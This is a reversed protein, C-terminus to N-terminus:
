NSNYDKKHISEKYKKQKEKEAKTWVKWGWWWKNNKEIGGKFHYEIEQLSHGHTEPICLIIFVVGALSAGAFFLFLPRTGGIAEQALPFGKIAAFMFAYAICVSLGGGLGRAEAPLLEGILTWPIVLVGLAATCVHLLVFTSVIWTPVSSDIGKDLLGSVLASVFMGIGSAACLIKRGVHRSLFAAIVSAVLRICGLAILAVTETSEDKSSKGALGRLVDVAYFVIVYTGSLQQFLFLLLLIVLPRRASPHTLIEKIGWNGEGGWKSRDQALMHLRKQAEMFHVDSPNLKRLATLAAERRFESIRNPRDSVQHKMRSIISLWVKPIIAPPAPFLYLWHPSEVPGFGGPACLLGLSILALAACCWALWRWSPLVAYAVYTGLVGLSVAVSNLCLLAPRLLPHSCESVYVLAVTTLGGGIGALFRGLCLITVSSSLAMMSWAIVFPLCAIRATTRRGWYDMLPGAALAGVPTSLTVTSAIWSAQDTTIPIESDDKSLDPLLVASFAMNIGAHIVISHACISALLQPMTDRWSLRTETNKADKEEPRGQSGGKHMLTELQLHEEHDIENIALQGNSVTLLTAM